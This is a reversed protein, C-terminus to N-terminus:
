SRSKIPNGAISVVSGSLHPYVRSRRRWYIAWRLGLFYSIFAVPIGLAICGVSLTLTCDLGMSLFQQLTPAATLQLFVDQTGLLQQGIWFNLMYLPVFTIPNSVWTAAAAALPNGRLTTALAIAVVTQIGFLPMVGTFAGAALGRAFAHPNRQLRKCRLYVYRVRRRALTLGSTQSPLPHRHPATM